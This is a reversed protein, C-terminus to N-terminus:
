FNGGFLCYSEVKLKPTNKRKVGSGCRAEQGGKGKYFSRCWLSLSWHGPHCSASGLGGCQNTEHALLLQPTRTSATEYKQGSPRDQANETEVQNANEEVRDWRSLHWQHKWNTSVYGDQGRGVCFWAKRLLCTWIKETQSYLFFPYTVDGQSQKGVAKSSKWSDCASSHLLSPSPLVAFGGDASPVLRSSM